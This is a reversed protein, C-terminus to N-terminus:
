SKRLKYIVKNEPLKQITLELDMGITLDEEKIEELWALIKENSELEAIGIIYPAYKEFGAPATRITTYSLLKCKNSITVWELDNRMCKSCDAKPPFYLTKCRKCKTGILKGAELYKVFDAIKTFPTYSVRGFREFM